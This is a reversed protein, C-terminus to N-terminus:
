TTTWYKNDTYDDPIPDLAELDNSAARIGSVEAWIAAGADWADAEADTWNARGKESLVAAQATLNRQKWEPLIALIRRAAEKKIGAVSLAREAVLDPAYAEILGLQGSTARTWLEANDPEIILMSGDDRTACIITKAKNKYQMAKFM